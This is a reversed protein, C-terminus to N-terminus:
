FQICYLFINTFLSRGEDNRKAVKESKYNKPIRRWSKLSQTLLHLAEDVTLVFGVSQM